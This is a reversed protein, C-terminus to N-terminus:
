NVDRVAHNMADRVRLCLHNFDNRYRLDGDRPREFDVAFDDNLHGGEMVAVRDAMYVAEAIDHTVFLATTQQTACLASFDAQLEERTLADLAAFPEDMLVVWPETILARAIAVRSQQGGSLEPPRRHVFGELGVLSLLAEARERGAKDLRGSLVLPLCVNDFVTRWELLTPSQFVLSVRPHPSNVPEGNVRVEGETPRLLGAAIKLLTTKGCGSRGLLCNIAGRELDWNVDNVVLPHDDYRFSVNHLDVFPM